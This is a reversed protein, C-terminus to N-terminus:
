LPAAGKWQGRLAAKAEPTLAARLAEVQDPTYASRQRARAAERATAATAEPRPGTDSAKSIAREGDNRPRSGLRDAWRNNLREGYRRIEEADTLAEEPQGARYVSLGLRILNGAKEDVLARAADPRYASTTEEALRVVFEAIEVEVQAEGAAGADVIREGDVVAFSGSSDPAAMMELMIEGDRCDLARPLPLVSIVVSKKKLGPKTKQVWYENRLDLVTDNIRLFGNTRALNLRLGVVAVGPLNRITVKGPGDLRIFEGSFRSTARQVIEVDETLAPLAIATFRGAKWRAKRWGPRLAKMGAVLIEAIMASVWARNHASDAFMAQKIVGLAELRAVLAYGDLYPIRHREALRVYPDRIVPEVQLLRPLILVVPLCRSATARCILNKLISDIDDWSMMGNRLPAEENVCFDLVCYDYNAFDVDHTSHISHISTSAGLSVNTVDVIDSLYEAYGGKRIGNSTGVVLVRPRIGAGESFSVMARVWDSM